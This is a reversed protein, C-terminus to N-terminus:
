ESVSTNKIIETEAPEALESSKPRFWILYIIELIGFTNIVLISIFWWKQGSRSAYWLSFGKLILILIAAIAFFLGIGSIFEAGLPLFEEMYMHLLM